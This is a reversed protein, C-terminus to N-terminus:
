PQPQPQPQPTTKKKTHHPDVAITPALDSAHGVEDELETEDCAVSETLARAKIFWAARDYADRDLM